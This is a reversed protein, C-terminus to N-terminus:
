YFLQTQSEEIDIQYQVIKYGQNRMTKYDVSSNTINVAKITDKELDHLYVQPSPLLNFSLNEAEEDNLWGTYLTWTTKIDKHYSIKGFDTPNNNNYVDLYSGRDYSDTKMTNGEILFSDFGGLRNRYYLAYGKGCVLKDYSVKDYTNEPNEFYFEKVNSEVGHVIFTSTTYETSPSYEEIVRGGEGIKAANWYQPHPGNQYVSFLFCMRPDFHGNIPRSLIFGDSARRDYVISPDYSWDQHVWYDVVESQSIQLSFKRDEESSVFTAEKSFDLFTDTMYNRFIASVNVKPNNEGPRAVARGTYLTNGLGDLIQFTAPNSSFEYIEDKWAPIFLNTRTGQVITMSNSVEGTQKSKVSVTLNRSSTSTNPGLEIWFGVPRGVQQSTYAPTGSTIIDFGRDGEEPLGTIVFYVKGGKGPVNLSNDPIGQNLAIQLAM